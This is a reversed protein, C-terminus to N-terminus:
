TSFDQGRVLSTIPLLTSQSEYIFQDVSPHGTQLCQQPNQCYPWTPPLLDTPCVKSSCTKDLRKMLRHILKWVVMLHTARSQRLKGGRHEKRVATRFAYSGSLCPNLARLSHALILIGRYLKRNCTHRLLQANVLM